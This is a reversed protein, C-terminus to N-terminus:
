HYLVPQIPMLRKMAFTYLFESNTVNYGVFLFMLINKGNINQNEIYFFHELPGSLSMTM